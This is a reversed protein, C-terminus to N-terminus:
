SNAAKVKNMATKTVNAISSKFAAAQKNATELGRQSAAKLKAQTTQPKEFKIIIAATKDGVLTTLERAKGYTIYSFKDHSSKVRLVNVYKGAYTFTVSSLANYQLESATILKNITQQVQEQYSMITRM